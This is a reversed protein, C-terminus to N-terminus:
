TANKRSTMTKGGSGLQIQCKIKEVAESFRELDAAGFSRSGVAEAKLDAIRHAWVGQRAEFAEVLLDRAATYRRARLLIDALSVVFEEKARRPAVRDERVAGPRVAGQWLLVLIGLLVAAVPYILTTSFVWGLFGRRAWLGHSYEDFAVIRKGGDTALSLVAVTTPATGAEALAVNAFPYASSFLYVKGEGISTSAVCVREGLRVVPEWEARLESSLFDMELAGRGEEQLRGLISDLDLITKAGARSLFPSVIPERAEPLARWSGGFGGLEGEGAVPGWPPGREFEPWREKLLRAVVHNGVLSELRGEGARVPPSPSVGYGFAHFVAQGPPAVVLRGGRKVWTELERIQAADVVTQRTKELLFDPLPDIILLVSSEPPPLQGYSKRHRLTRFGLKELVDRTARYGDGRVSFSSRVDTGLQDKESWANLLFSIALAVVSAAALTLVLRRQVRRAELAEDSVLVEGTGPAIPRPPSM